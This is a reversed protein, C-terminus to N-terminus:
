FQGIATERSSIDDIQTKILEIDAENRVEINVIPRNNEQMSHRIEKTMHANFDNKLSSGLGETIGSSLDVKFADMVKIAALRSERAAKNAFQAIGNGLGIMSYMGLSRFERSPSHIGLASKAASLAGKAADWAAQALDKAKDIVGQVMGSILDVGAQVFDSVFSRAKSVANSVGEGVSSVVRVFGDIIKNIFRAMGNAANSVMQNFGNVIKSVWKSVFGSISGVLASFKSTINSWIQSVKSSVTSWIQQWSTGFIGLIRNLVSSLYGTIIDWINLIAQWILELNTSVMNKLTQWAGGFDGTLFQILATFLSVITNVAISIITGIIQGAIQIVTWLTQFAIIVQSIILMVQIGFVKSFVQGLSELIPMIPKLTSQINSWLEQFWSIIGEIADGIAKTLDEWAKTIFNRFDENTKWLYVVAGVLGAIIGIVIGVPGTLATFAGSLLPLLKVLNGIPNLLFGIAGKLLNIVGSFIKTAAGSTLFRKALKLLSLDFLGLFSNVAILPVALSWIAGFLIAAVAAVKAIWPHNEMLAATFGIVKTVVKLIASAIPAIAKGFEFLLKIINGILQMIVPGNKQMYDIFKKFGESKGITESWNRLKASMKDLYKFINTSNQGFAKMLNFIGAFVNKFINGIIPLNKRTYEMFQKISNQGTASNAWKQFSQGLRELWNASWQFLPALQTFVNILADGFRGAANLLKNFISVGTKNMMAFFKQAVKSNEAWELMKRSAINVGDAVSKFFPTLSKLASKVTNLGNAMSEFIANANQKVIDQWTSKVGELASQYKQTEASVEIIGDELMKIATIAMGAYGAFGGFAIAGVGGFAVVGGTLVKVANLVAFLSPVLGAIVPILGQISTLMIGKFAQSFVISFSKIDGALRDINGKFHNIQNEFNRFARQLKSTATTDIDIKITEKKPLTRLTQAVKKLKFQAKTVNADINVNKNNPLTYLKQTLRRINYQAKKVKADIDVEKRPPITTLIGKARTLKKQLKRLDATVYVTIENPVATKALRQAKRINREFNRLVAFIKAVFNSEM